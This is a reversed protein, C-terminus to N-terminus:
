PLLSHLTSALGECDLGLEHYLEEPSGHEIFRDPIGLRVVRTTHGHDSMYELIASGAGGALSGDELTVICTHEAAISELMATDLPKVFRLDYHAISIPRGAAAREEEVRTIADAAVNGIPGLTVFALDVGAKMQRGKGIPIPEFACKWDTRRGSGRPYRIVFLGHNDAQATYMLHRLECEDYPSALIVNPVTRLSPIDFVGHHTPGDAGVIGARDLCLTVPLDLLATDHIVNDYARQAFSSYINCFPQMGEKALGASFTMAHGEAIGVDFARDPMAEMLKIMSCGTPMAPTIGVIRPNQNALEVLTCGFVDQFLPPQPTTDCSCTTLRVGLDPDFKGPAHWITSEREAPEYGKGKITHLHLIKPGQMDKIDELIRVLDDVNHGDHPGFYRINLGEFMNQQKTLLSKVSNNFRIISQRGKETLGLYKLFSGAHQRAKNYTASTHLQLLYHKLGGVSQDISMDNDNIIILLNNPTSSANNLGEFALGGSMAGDGIVAVVHRNEGQQKAAIAMGLAASISNSAHGCAFTDYESEHPSPFPKIGGYQRNTYFSDRRGTLIKHGYAQHGVDWVIRDFPTNFVYHLAVTLEVTGLSSAFHGPNRALEDIIDQRLEQCVSTLQEPRLTRLDAPSDIKPLYTYKNSPEM